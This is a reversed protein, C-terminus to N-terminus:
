FSKLNNRQSEFGPGLLAEVTCAVFFADWIPHENRSEAPIRVWSEAASQSYLCCFFADQESVRQTIGSPNSGLVWCRKSQVLLLFPMKNLYGKRSEAPIRVWSGAASQSYLRVVLCHFSLYKFILAVFFADGFLISMAHNRQSEFGPGLQAKVTYLLLFLM